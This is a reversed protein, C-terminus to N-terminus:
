NIKNKEKKKKIKRKEKKLKAFINRQRAAIKSFFNRALGCTKEKKVFINRKRAAIKSLIKGKRALEAQRRAVDLRQMAPPM